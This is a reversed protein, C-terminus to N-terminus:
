DLLPHMHRNYHKYHFALSQFERPLWNMLKNTFNSDISNAQGHLLWLERRYYCHYWTYLNDHFHNIWCKTALVLSAAPCKGWSKHTGMRAPEFKDTWGDWWRDVRANCSAVEGAKLTTLFLPGAACGLSKSCCESKCQRRLDCVGHRFCVIVPMRVKIGLRRFDQHNTESCSPPSTEYRCRQADDDDDKPQSVLINDTFSCAYAFDYFFDSLSLEFEPWLQKLLFFMMTKCLTLSNNLSRKQKACYGSSSSRCKSLTDTTYWVLSSTGWADIFTYKSSLTRVLTM